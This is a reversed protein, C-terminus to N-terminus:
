KRYQLGIEKFHAIRQTMDPYREKTQASYIGNELHGTAAHEHGVLAWTSDMLHAFEPRRLVTCVFDQRPQNIDEGSIEMMGYERCKEMVRLLQPLTNRSPMYAIAEFRLEKIVPFLEDLYDDEFKQAKKDGTPSAGVDGLYCYTPIAGTQRAYEVVEGVPLSDAGGTIFFRPVLETKLVNLVDYEYAAFATDSLLTQTQASLCIGLKQELFGILGEGRGYKKILKKVLAFLLHRETVSGGEAAMSLPLVDKEFDIEMEYPAMIGNLLKLQQKNRENRLVRVRSLLADLQDIRDHPVGHLAIYGITPEDPNNIRKGKLVTDAFSVRVEAGITTTIGLIEGAQIFERAGAISDHDVIGVTCLGSMYAKYIAASPTYPSFSDTTHVHNNTDETRVPLPIDGALLMKKLERLAHLRTEKEPASLKEVWIVEKNM